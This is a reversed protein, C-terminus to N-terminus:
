DESVTYVKAGPFDHNRTIFTSYRNLAVKENQTSGISLKPFVVYESEVQLDKSEIYEGM